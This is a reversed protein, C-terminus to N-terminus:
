RQSAGRRECDIVKDCFFDISASPTKFCPPLLSYVPALATQHRRYACSTCFPTNNAAFCRAIHHLIGTQRNYFASCNAAFRLTLGLLFCPWCITDQTPTLAKESSPLSTYSLPLVIKLLTCKSPFTSKPLNFLRRKAAFLFPLPHLICTANESTSSYRLTYSLFCHNILM